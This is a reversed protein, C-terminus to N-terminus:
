QGGPYLTKVQRFNVPATPDALPHGPPASRAAEILAAYEAETIIKSFNVWEMQPVSWPEPRAAKCTPEGNILVLWLGDSELIRAAVFPGGRVRRIKRPGPTPTEPNIPSTM